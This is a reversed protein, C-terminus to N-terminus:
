LQGGSSRGFSSFKAFIIVLSLSGVAIIITLLNEFVLNILTQSEMTEAFISINRMQDYANGLYTGLFVTLIIFLIYLFMFIPHVRILFASILTSIILGVFLLFFGMQIQTTGFKELQQVANAGESSEGMGANELGESIQPIIFAFIFLGVGLIFLLILFIFIDTVDGRKNMSDKKILEKLLEMM